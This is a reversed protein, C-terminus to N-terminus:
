KSKMWAIHHTFLTSNAKFCELYKRENTTQREQRREVCVSWSRSPRWKSCTISHQLPSFLRVCLVNWMLPSKDGELSAQNQKKKRLFLRSCCRYFTFILFAFLKLVKNVSKSPNSTTARNHLVACWDSDQLFFKNVTTIKQHATTKWGRAFLSEGGLHSQRARHEALAHVWRRGVLLLIHSFSSFDSLFNRTFLKAASCHFHTPPHKSSLKWLSIEQVQSDRAQATSHFSWM